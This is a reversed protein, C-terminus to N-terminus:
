LTSVKKLRKKERKREKKDYQHKRELLEETALAQHCIDDNLYYHHDRRDSVDNRNERAMKLIQFKLRRQFM